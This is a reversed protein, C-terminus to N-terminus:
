KRGNWADIFATKDKLTLGVRKNRGLRALADAIKDLVLQEDHSVPAYDADDQPHNAADTGGRSTNYVSEAIRVRVCTSPRSLLDWLFSFWRGPVPTTVDAPTYRLSVPFIPTDPAAGLLSPTFPLVAKGNTPSAEPFVVIVRDPHRAVLAGLDVLNTRPAPRLRVPALSAAVAGFLSLPEVQRTSPYSRTFVPDFIAALYLTDIPSTFTAAIVSGPHPVRNRPQEALTGRRVGDLQLDVWWIGPVLMISWLCAKRVVAPLPLHHLFLAYTLAITLFMPLRLFFITLHTLLALRSRPTKVPIFPAIGSGRDRFQSYKEM